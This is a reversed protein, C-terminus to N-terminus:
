IQIPIQVQMQIKMQIQIQADTDTDTSADVDTDTDTDTNPGVGLLCGPPVLSAGLLCGLSVWSAGLPCGPPVWGLLHIQPNSSCFTTGSQLLIPADSFFRLKKQLRVASTSVGLMATRLVHSSLRYKNCRYIDLLVDHRITLLM